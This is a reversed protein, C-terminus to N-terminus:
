GHCCPRRPTTQAPREADKAFSMGPSGPLPCECALGRPQTGLPTQVLGSEAVEGVPCPALPGVLSGQTPGALCCTPQQHSRAWLRALDPANAFQWLPTHALPDAVLTGHPGSFQRPNLRGPPLRSAPTTFIWRRALCPASSPLRKPDAQCPLPAQALGAAVMPASWHTCTDQVRRDRMVCPLPAHRNGSRGGSFFLGHFNLIRPRCSRRVSM